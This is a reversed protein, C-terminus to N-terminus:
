SGSTTWQRRGRKLFPEVIGLALLKLEKPGARMYLREQQQLIEGIDMEFLYEGLPADKGVCAELFEENSFIQFLPRSPLVYMMTFLDFIVVHGTKM